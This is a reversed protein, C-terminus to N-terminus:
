EIITIIYTQSAIPGCLGQIPAYLRAAQQAEIKFMCGVLKDIWGWGESVASNGVLNLMYNPMGLIRVYGCLEWYKM